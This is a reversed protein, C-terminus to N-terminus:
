MEKLNSKMLLPNVRDFTYQLGCLETNLRKLRKQQKTVWGLFPPQKQQEPCVFIVIRACDALFTNKLSSASDINHAMLMADSM